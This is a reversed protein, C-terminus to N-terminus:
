RKFHHDTHIGFIALVLCNWIGTFNFNFYKNWKAPTYQHSFLEVRCYDLYESFGAMACIVAAFAIPTISLSILLVPSWALILGAFAIIFEVNSYSGQYDLVSNTADILNQFLMWKLVVFQLAYVLLWVIM